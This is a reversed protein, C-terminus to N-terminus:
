NENKKKKKAEEGSSILSYNYFAGGMMDNAAWFSFELCDKCTVWYAWGSKEREIDMNKSFCKPCIIDNSDM